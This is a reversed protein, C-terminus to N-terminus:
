LAQGLSRRLLRLTMVLFMLPLPLLLSWGPLGLPGASGLHLDLALYGLAARALLLCVLAALLCALVSRIRAVPAGQGSATLEGPQALWLSASLMLLWLFIAKLLEGGFGPLPLGALSYGFRILCVFVLLTTLTLLLLREFAQWEHDILDWAVM